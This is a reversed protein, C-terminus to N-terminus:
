DHAATSQQAQTVVRFHYRVSDTLRTLTVGKVRRHRALAPRGFLGARRLVTWPPHGDDEIVNVAHWGFDNINHIVQREVDDAGVRQPKTM